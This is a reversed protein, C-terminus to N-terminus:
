KRLKSRMIGNWACEFEVAPFRPDSLDEVLDRVKMVEDRLPELDRMGDWGDRLGMQRHLTSGPELKKRLSHAQKLIRSRHQKLRM